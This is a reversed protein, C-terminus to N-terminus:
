TTFNLELSNSGFPISIECVSRKRMCCCCLKSSSFSVNSSLWRPSLPIWSPQLAFLAQTGWSHTMNHCRSRQWGNIYLQIIAISLAPACPIFRPLWSWILLYSSSDCVRKEALLYLSNWGRATLSAYEFRLLASRTLLSKLLPSAHPQCEHM